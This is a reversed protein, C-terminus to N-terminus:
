GRRRLAPDPYSAEEGQDTLTPFEGQNQVALLPEAKPEADGVPKTALMQKDEHATLEEAAHWHDEAKGEPRGETIWLEHARRRVREQRDM